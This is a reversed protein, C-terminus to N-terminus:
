EMDKIFNSLKAIAEFLENRAKGAPMAQAAISVDLVLDMLKLTQKQQNTM